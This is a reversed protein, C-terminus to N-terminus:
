GCRPPRFSTPVLRTGCAPTHNLYSVPHWFHRGGLMKVPGCVGFGDGGIDEARAILFHRARGIIDAEAVMARYRDVVHGPLPVVVLVFAAAANLFQDLDVLLDVVAIRRDSVGLLALLVKLVALLRARVAVRRSVTLRRLLFHFCSVGVVISRALYGELHYADDEFLRAPTVDGVRAALAHFSEALAAGRSLGVLTPQPAELGAFIHARRRLLIPGIEVGGLKALVRVVRSRFTKLM